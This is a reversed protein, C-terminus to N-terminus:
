PTTNLPLKVFHTANMLFLFKATTLYFQLIRTVSRVLPYVFACYTTTKIPFDSELQILYVQRVPIRVNKFISVYDYSLRTGQFNLNRYDVM